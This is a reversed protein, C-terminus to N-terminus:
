SPISHRSKSASIILWRISSSEKKELDKRIATLTKEAYPKLKDTKINVKFKKTRKAKRLYAHASSQSQSRLVSYNRTNEISLKVKQKIFVAHGQNDNLLLNLKHRNKAKHMGIFLKMDDKSAKLSSYAKSAASLASDIFQIRALSDKETFAQRLNIVALQNECITTIFHNHRNSAQSQASLAKFQEKFSLEAYHDCEPCEVGQPTQTKLISDNAYYYASDTELERFTRKDGLNWMLNNPVHTVAFARPESLYYGKIIGPKFVARTRVPFSTLRNRLLHNFFRRKYYVVPEQRKDECLLRMRSRYKNRLKKEKLKEPHKSLWRTVWKGGLGKIQYEMTGVISTPDYVYWLGDLKVANWVHNHFYITDEVDFIWDKDYGYVTVNTIGALKCLTDMLNTYGLCIARKETLIRSISNPYFEKPMYFARTNNGTNNTVWTFIADFKEKDSSKGETLRNVLLEANKRTRKNVQVNNDTYVLLDPDETVQSILPCSCCLLLIILSRYMNMAFGM